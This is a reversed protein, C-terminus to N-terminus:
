IRKKKVDVWILHTVCNNGLLKVVAIGSFRNALWDEDIVAGSRAEEYEQLRYTRLEPEILKALDKSGRITKLPADKAMM